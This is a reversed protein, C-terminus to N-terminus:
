NVYETLRLDVRFLFVNYPQWQSMLFYLEDGDNKQPHIFAGYLGPYDDGSVLLKADSWKGNITVADRLMIKRRHEDLYTVMWRKYKTNYALSLEGAPGNFIPSAKAENGKVWGTKTHYEYNSQKAINQEKFRALYVDGFRGAKTGLMYVYGDMKGYAAQAFNSIAAFTVGPVKAWNKGDDTSRYLGSYNTSWTGPAGWKKVAMYHLYDAGNVRIAATPITTWDGNGSTNHASPVIERASKGDTSMAMGSFTLGDDLKNDASFALLNSRWNAGNGGGEKTQKWNRGFSDGFFIGTRGKGMDWMIGLDTGGLDYKVPTNNPNPLTEGPLTAGTVRAIRKLNVAILNNAKQKQVHKKLARLDDKKFCIMMIAFALVGVICLIRKM